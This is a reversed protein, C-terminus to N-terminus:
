ARTHERLEQEAATLFAAQQENTKYSPPLSFVATMLGRPEFGTELDTGGTGPQSAITGRGGVVADGSRDRWRGSCLAATAAGQGFHRLARGGAFDSVLPQPHMGPQEYLKTFIREPTKCM